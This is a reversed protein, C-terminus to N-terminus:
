QTYKLEVSHIKHECVIYEITLNMESIARPKM